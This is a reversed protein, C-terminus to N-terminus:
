FEVFYLTFLITFWCFWSLRYKFNMYLVNGIRDVRWKIWNSVIVCVNWFGCKLGLIWEDCIRGNFFLWLLWYIAWVCDKIHNNINMHKRIMIVWWWIVIFYTCCQKSIFAKKSSPILLTFHHFSKTNM